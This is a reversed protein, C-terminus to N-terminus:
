MRRRVAAFGLVGLMMALLALVGTNATPILTPTNDSGSGVTVTGSAANNDPTPDGTSSSASATAGAAGRLYSYAIVDVSRVVGPATAGSWTCTVTGSSGLTPATCIGGASPAVSSFQVGTALVIGVQVNQANSPGNNTADASFTIPLGPTAQAPSASFALVLDASTQVTTNAIATDNGGNNDISSSDAIATAALTGAAASAPVSTGVALTRVGGNATAGAWVCDVTFAGGVNLTSCNGGASPTVTPAALGAQLSLAVEVGQAIGPGGNTLTATYSLASGATVPDPTDTLVVGVDASPPAVATSAPATNNGPTLDTTASGVTLTTNLPGVAAIDVAAVVTVTRPTGPATAGAWTCNVAGNNGVGPNTCVGGSSAVASVFTTTAPLPLGATVTQADSPGANSVTVGYTLNGGATVPDPSDTLAAGLNAQATLTDIDDPSTNNGPVPDGFTGTVTASNTLTGTASAAIACTATFTTSAGAPLNVLANINGSGNAPCTGGGAGVCTWNVSTCAAPFTDTVTAGTAPDGAVNSAVITYVTNTGPVSTATGNTKTISLDASLARCATISVDDIAVGAFNVSDDSIVSFALEANLGALADARATFQGWGAAEQLTVAPNGVANTMTAGLWEFLRIPTAGGVQQATVNYLDFSANEMQYKQAWRVVVPASLTSLDIAPSLLTQSSDADYTNDLDTAFCNSGSNCTTIPAFAPLGREWENAAGSSTFGAADTEFDTSYVVQETFGAPCIPPPPPECVTISWGTLNGGEAALDDRLDLTWVGGADQGDFWSLSYALEPRVKIGRLVTFLPPIGAEDDFVADMQAQGAVASAGIDTFLGVVNGSPAILSVDLDAMRTHNLQIAVDIDAIRPNGPVTLTSTINGPGTPIVQPVNTSTYTSCTGGPFAGPAPLISVSLNYTATPGGTAATASDVFAFYTGTNKVTMFMAESLPNAVSGTSGDNATLIQNDADGFLGIGLRGNWQVNDREPDLDLSLFVTDGANASFSFWDQETALAPDRAGSIWGGGLPNATGPIDNPEVEAVPAGSRRQVFLDYPRLQNTASFHRVEFFYIGAAPLIAGAISSSFGGFSGDDDDFEVLTTGDSAFLRLQSDFNGNSSASTMLAAYIRDGAAGSFSYYDVDGNAFINGVIKAFGSGNLAIPTATASSGNPEVEAAVRPDLNFTPTIPLDAARQVTPKGDVLAAAGKIEIDGASGAISPAALGAATTLGFLLLGLLLRSASPRLRAEAISVHAVRMTLNEQHDPLGRGIHWCLVFRAAGHL